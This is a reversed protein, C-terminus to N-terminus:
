PKRYVPRALIVPPKVEEEPAGSDFKHMKLDFARVGSSTYVADKHLKYTEYADFIPSFHLPREGPEDRWMLIEVLSLPVDTDWQEDRQGYLLPLADNRWWDTVQDIYQEWADPDTVHTKCDERLYAVYQRGRDIVVQASEPLTELLYAPDDFSAVREIVAPFLFAYSMLRFDDAGECIHRLLCEIVALTSAIGLETEDELPSEPPLSEKVQKRLKTLELELRRVERGMERELKAKYIETQTLLKDFKTDIKEVESSLQEISIKFNSIKKKLSSVSSRMSDTAFVINDMM